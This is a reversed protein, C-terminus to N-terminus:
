QKKLQIHFYSDTLGYGNQFIYKPTKWIKLQGDTM